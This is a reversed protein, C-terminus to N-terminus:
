QQATRHAANGARGSCAYWLPLQCVYTDIYVPNDSPGLHKTRFFACHDCLLRHRTALIAPSYFTAVPTPHTERKEECQAGFEIYTRGAVKLRLKRSEGLLSHVYKYKREQDNDAM